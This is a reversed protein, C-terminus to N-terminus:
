VRCSTLTAAKITEWLPLNLWAMELLIITPNIAILYFFVGILMELKSKIRGKVWLTVIFLGWCAIANNFSMAVLMVDIEKGCTELLAIDSKLLLMLGIWTGVIATFIAPYSNLLSAGWSGFPSSFHSPGHGITKPNFLRWISKLKLIPLTTKDEINPNSLEVSYRNSNIELVGLYFALLELGLMILAFFKGLLPNIHNSYVAIIFVSMAAIGISFILFFRQTRVDNKRLLPILRIGTLSVIITLISNFIAAFPETPVQKTFNYFFYYGSITVLTGSVIHWRFVGTKKWYIKIFGLRVFEWTLFLMIITALITGTWYVM